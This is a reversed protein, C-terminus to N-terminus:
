PLRFQQLANEVLVTVTSRPFKEKLIKWPVVNRYGYKERSMADFVETMGNYYKLFELDKIFSNPENQLAYELVVAAVGAAIPTAVSTGSMRKYPKKNGETIWASKVNEGLISFNNAGKMEPNFDSPVGNSNASNVCVVGELWAPFTMDRQTGNNSAAAFVLTENNIAEQIATQVARSGGYFGFSM